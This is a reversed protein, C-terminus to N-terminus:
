ELLKVFFNRIKSKIKSAYGTKYEVLTKQRTQEEKQEESDEENRKFVDEQGCKEEESIKTKRENLAHLQHMIEKQNESLLYEMNIYSLIAVTDRSIDQEKLPKTVDYKWSYNKSKNEKIANRIKRPIKAQEEESLCNLIEDVEVLRKNYDVM